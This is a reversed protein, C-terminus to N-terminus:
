SAKVLAGQHRRRVLCLLGQPLAGHVVVPARSGPPGLPRVPRAAQSASRAIAAPEVSLMVIKIM